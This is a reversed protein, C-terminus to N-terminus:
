IRLFDPAQGERVAIRVIVPGWFCELREHGHYCGSSKSPGQFCHERIFIDISGGPRKSRGILMWLFYCIFGDFCVHTWKDSRLLAGAIQLAENQSEVVLMSDRDFRFKLCQLRWGQNNPARVIDVKVDFPGM